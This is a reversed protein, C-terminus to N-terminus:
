SGLIKAGSLVLVKGRVCAAFDVVGDRNVDDFEEFRPRGLPTGPGYPIEAILRGDKASLINAVRRPVSDAGYKRFLEVAIIDRLGDGDLDEVTGLGNWHQDFRGLQEIEPATLAERM